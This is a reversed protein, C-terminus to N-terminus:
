LTGENPKNQETSQIAIAKDSSENAPAKDSNEHANSNDGKKHVSVNDSNQDTLVPLNSLFKKDNISVELIASLDLSIQPQAPVINSYNLTNRNDRLETWDPRSDNVSVSDETPLVPNGTKSASMIIQEIPVDDRKTVQLHKSEATVIADLVSVSDEIPM